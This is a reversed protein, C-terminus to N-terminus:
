VDSPRYSAATFSHQWPTVIRSARHVTEASRVLIQTLPPVLRFMMKVTVHQSPLQNSPHVPRQVLISFLLQQPSAPTDVACQPNGHTSASMGHCMLTLTLDM